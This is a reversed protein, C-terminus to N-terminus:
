LYRTNWSPAVNWHAMQNQMCITTAPVQANIFVFDDLLTSRIPAGFNQNYACHPQTLAARHCLHIFIWGAMCSMSPHFDLRGHIGYISSAYLCSYPAGTWEVKSSSKSYLPALVHPQNLRWIRLWSENLKSQIQGVFIFFLTCPLRKLKTSESANIM